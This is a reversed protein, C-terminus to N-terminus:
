IYSSRTLSCRAKSSHRPTMKVPDSLPNQNTPIEQVAKFTLV